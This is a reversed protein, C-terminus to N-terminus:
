IGSIEFIFEIEVPSDMPLEAVGVAARAHRGPDGFIQVLFESAGNLVAAQGTFGSASAVYGTVKVCRKVHGLEGLYGKVIALANIAVTRALEAGEREDLGAGLKGTKVLRGERVPLLGSLFLLNGSRLIPLYAGLPAPPEPLIIGLAAIKEEPTM